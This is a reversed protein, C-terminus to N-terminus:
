QADPKATPASPAATNPKDPTCDFAAAIKMAQDKTIVNKDVLRELTKDLRVCFRRHHDKDKHQAKNGDKAVLASADTPLTAIATADTSPAAAYATAAALLTSGFLISALSIGFTKLFSTM